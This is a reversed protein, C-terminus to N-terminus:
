LNQNIRDDSDQHKIQPQPVPSIGSQIRVNPDYTFLGYDEAFFKTDEFDTSVNRKIRYIM